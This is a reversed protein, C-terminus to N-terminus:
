RFRPARKELFASIGEVAEGQEFLQQIQEVEYRRGEAFPRDFAADVARVVAAVAPRSVARLRGALELAATLAAGAPVVRDVLGIAGAEAADIKRGTAMLDIARGRGVLRPLRQTGAAGPILGLTVEPLGFVADAGAVRMTAAMALELGGGLAVGEVAAIGVLDADALREVVFRLQDGYATFSEADLTRMHGIDAGAGFFGPIASTLVLVRTGRRQAEDLVAHLGDIIPPGLANAPRRAITAVLVDEAGETWSVVDTM